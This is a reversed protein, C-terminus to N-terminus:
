GGKKNNTGNIMDLILTKDILPLTLFQKPDVPVTAVRLEWHLHPGTSYGTSGVEGIKDGKEVLDGKKVNISDLHYYISKVGPLHEIIVSNGSVIRYEALIVVGRGDAVVPTGKIAALDEGYHISSTEKGSPFKTFRQFGYPSTHRGDVPQLLTGVEHLIYPSFSSIADWLRKSEAQRQEDITGNAISDMQDNALFETALFETKLVTLPKEFYYNNLLGEGTAKLKYEGPPLNPPIGAIGLVTNIMQEYLYYNFGEIELIKKGSHNHLTFTYDVKDDVPYIVFTVVSGQQVSDKSLLNDSFCIFPILLYIILSKKM